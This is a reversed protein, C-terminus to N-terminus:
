FAGAKKESVTKLKRSMTRYSLGVIKQTLSAM